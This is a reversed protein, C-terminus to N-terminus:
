RKSLGLPPAQFVKRRPERFEVSVKGTAAKAHGEDKSQQQSQIFSPAALALTRSGREM